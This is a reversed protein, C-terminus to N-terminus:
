QRRLERNSGDSTSGIATAEESEWRSSSRANRREADRAGTATPRPTARHRHGGASARGAAHPAPRARRRQPTTTCRAQAPVRCGDRAPPARRGSARTATPRRPVPSAIRAPVCRAAAVQASSSQRRPPHRPRGRAARMGRAFPQVRCRCVQEPRHRLDQGPIRRGRRQEPDGSCRAGRIRRESSHLAAPRMRPATGDLGPRSPVARVEPEGDVRGCACRGASRQRRKCSGSKM